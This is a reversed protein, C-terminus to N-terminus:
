WSHNSTFPSIVKRLARVVSSLLAVFSFLEGWGQESNPASASVPMFLLFRKVSEWFRFVKESNWTENEFGSFRKRTEPKMRLVQFSIGLKLDSGFIVIVKESKWPKTVQSKGLKKPPLFGGRWWAFKESNCFDGVDDPSKESNSFDDDASKKSDSFDAMQNLFNNDKNKSFLDQFVQFSKEGNKFSNGYQNWFLKNESFVKGLRGLNRRKEIIRKEITRVTGCGLYEISEKDSEGNKLQFSKKIRVKGVRELGELIEKEISINENWKLIERLFLYYLFSICHLLEMYHFLTHIIFCLLNNVMSFCFSGNL